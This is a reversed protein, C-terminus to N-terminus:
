RVRGERQAAFIDADVADARAKGDTSNLRGASRHAYFTSIEARTWVRKGSGDPASAPGAKPQGPTVLSELRVQPAPAAPAPSAAPAPPTTIVAHENLFGKFFAVVRPGDHSKYAQDLLKGRVEGAYPDKQDLWTLFEPNENVKLWDPVQSSLLDHVTQQDNQQARRAVSSAVSAVQDVRQSVPAVRKDIEPMLAHHEERIVRRMVDILDPGFERIEEDKVLKVPATPASAPPAGAPAAAQQTGFSALLTQTATLQERLQSVSGSLDRVTNQLRPVEANYKGQLVKYKQEWEEVPLKVVPPPPAAAAAAPPDGAPPDGAPASAPPTGDAAPPDGAPTEGKMAKYYDDAVKNAKDIQAQVQKPLASM